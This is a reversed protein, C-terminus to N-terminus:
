GAVVAGYDSGARKIIGDREVISDKDIWGTTDISNKKM